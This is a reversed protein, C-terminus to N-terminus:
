NICIHDIQNSTRGDPSVWSLKHINKHKFITGGIVLGNEMCVDVLRQGNDNREGVGEKGMCAEYGVNDTGVKANFDGMLILIDHRPTQDIQDQLSSYFLDKDEETAQETPAYCQIITTKIYRSYFRARVIRPSVPEWGLLRKRAEKDMIIGVGEQHQGDTKGSYCVTQGSNLTIMGSDTWRMESVGLISLRYREMEKVVQLTKGTEYM